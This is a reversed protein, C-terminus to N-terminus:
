RRAEPKESQKNKEDPERPNKQPFPTGPEVEGVGGKGGLGSIREAHHHGEEGDAKGQVGGCAEGSGDLFAPYMRGPDREAAQNRQSKNEAGRAKARSQGGKEGESAQRRENLPHPEMEMHEVRQTPRM